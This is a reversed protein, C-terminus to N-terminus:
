HADLWNKGEGIDVKLPIALTAAKEMQERVVTIVQAADAERAELVLEDHVQLLLKAALAGSDILTQVNIMAIKILDAASGQITTNVATRESFQRVQRNASNIDPLNRRRGFLTEVYGKEQAFAVTRDIYGRIRPYSAFYNDIFEQAEKQSIRLQRSLGFASQGYIIGFNVAKAMSRQTDSVMDPFISFVLAATKRHIDENNRFAEILTEESSVHALIRLEIQSYDGSILVNDPSRAIFAKRLERGTETRIPINQINPDSSSLRGTATISQNFSTHVIGQAGAKEPLADVYTSKLKSYERHEIILRPLEHEIALQELVESDTSFGTKVKKLPAIKLENFLIEALQKPSNINFERGASRIIERHLADLKKEYEVSLEALFARDIAIGEREMALLVSVLPMEINKFLGDLGQAALQEKYVAMLRYTFDADECSYFTAADVPVESFPIQGAKKEGILATIPQMSYSFVSFACVDLSYQRTGPNLLYAAVMTDFLPGAVPMAHRQLVGMDFKLNHGAKVIVPDAFLPALMKRVGDIQANPGATHGLPVYLAEGQACSLSIGTLNLTRMNLSDTETDLAFSGLSRARQVFAELPDMAIVTRYDHVAISATGKSAVAEKLFQNFELERLLDAYEQSDFPGYPFTDAAIPVDTKITVLQKSLFANDRNDVLTQRLGKKSIKEINDYVGELSGYAALLEVATKPGVKAVGPINDSADGVLALYDVMRGPEVGFKEKVDTSEMFLEKEGQMKPDMMIINDSVLQAFDKDKSVIVAREGAAAARVAITGIIDDAEVGPLQLVPVHMAKLLRLILPIQSRLDDPMPPRHAKYGPFLRHRSTNQDRSNILPTRILAYHGRYAMGMGDIIHVSRM